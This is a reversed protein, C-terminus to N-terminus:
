SLSAHLLFQKLCMRKLHEPFIKTVSLEEKNIIYFDHKEPEHNLAFKVNGCIDQLDCVNASSEAIDKCVSLVIRSYEEFFRDFCSYYDGCRLSSYRKEKVIRNVRKKVDETTSYRQKVTQMIKVIYETSLKSFFSRPLDSQLLYLLCMDDLKLRGRGEEDRLVAVEKFSDYSEQLWFSRGNREIIKDLLDKVTMSKEKAGYWIGKYTKNLADM